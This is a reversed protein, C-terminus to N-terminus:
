STGADWSRINIIFKTLFEVDTMKNCVIITLYGFIMQSLFYRTKEYMNITM